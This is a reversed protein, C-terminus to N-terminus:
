NAQSKYSTCINAVPLRDKVSLASEKAKTSQSSFTVFLSYIIKKIQEKSRSEILYRYHSNFM